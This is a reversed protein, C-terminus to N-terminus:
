AIHHDNVIPAFYLSRPSVDAMQPNELMQRRVKEVQDPDGLVENITGQIAAPDANGDLMSKLLKRQSPDLGPIKNIMAKLASMDGSLIGELPARVEEPLQNLLASIQAPDSLVEALQESYNKMAQVGEAMTQRLVAPDSFQDNDVLAAIDPNSGLAPIQNILSRIAEPTIM